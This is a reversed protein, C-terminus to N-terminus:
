ACLPTLEGTVLNERMLIVRPLLKAVDAPVRWAEGPPILPEGDASDPLEIGACVRCTLLHAQYEEETLVRHVIKWGRQREEEERARNLAATFELLEPSPVLFGGDNHRSM